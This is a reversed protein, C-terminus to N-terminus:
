GSAAPAPAETPERCSASWLRAPAAPCHWCVTRCAVLTFTLLQDTFLSQELHVASGPSRLLVASAISVGTHTVAICLNTLHYVDEHQLM